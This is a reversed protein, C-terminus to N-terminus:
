KMNMLYKSHDCVFSVNLKVRSRKHRNLFCIYQHCCCFPSLMESNRDREDVNPCDFVWEYFISFFFNDDFFLLLNTIQSDPIRVFLRKKKLEQHKIGNFKQTINFFILVIILLCFQLSLSRNHHVLFFFLALPYESEMM